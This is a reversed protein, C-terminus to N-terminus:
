PIETENGCGGSLMWIGFMKKLGNASVDAGGLEIALFLAEPCWFHCDTEVQPSCVCDTEEHGVISHQDRGSESVGLGKM